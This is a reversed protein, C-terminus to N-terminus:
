SARSSSPRTTRVILQTREGSDVIFGGFLTQDPRISSLELGGAPGRGPEIHDAPPGPASGWRPYDFSQVPTTPGARPTPSSRHGSDFFVAENDSHLDTAPSSTSRTKALSRLLTNVNVSVNLVSTRVARAPPREEGQARVTGITNDSHTPTIPSSSVRLGPGPRRRAHGGGGGGLDAVAARAQRTEHRGATRTGRSAMVMVANQRWVSSGSSGVLNVLRRQRDPHPGAAVLLDRTPRTTRTRSTRTTGTVATAADAAFPSLRQQDLLDAPNSASSRSTGEQALLTSSSSPLEEANAHKLRCGRCAPSLPKDLDEIIRRSRWWTTRRSLDGGAPEVQMAQVLVDGGAAGCGADGVIGGGGGGTSTTGRGYSRAPRSGEGTRLEEAQLDAGCVLIDM